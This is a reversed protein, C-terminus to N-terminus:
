FRRKKARSAQTDRGSLGGDGMARKGGGKGSIEGGKGGDKKKGHGGGNGGGQLKGGKFTRATGQAKDPRLQLMEDEEVGWPNLQEPVKGQGQKKFQGQVENTQVPAKKGTGKKSSSSSSGSASASGEAYRRNSQGVSAHSMERVKEKPKVGIYVNRFGLDACQEVYQREVIRNFGGFSRRGPLQSFVDRDETPAYGVGMVSTGTEVASGTVTCAGAVGGGSKRLMFKMKMTSSSLVQQKQKPASEGAPKSAQLCDTSTSTKVTGPKTQGPKWFKPTEM